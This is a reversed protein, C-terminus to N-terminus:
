PPIVTSITASFFYIADTLRIKEAIILDDYAVLRSFCKITKNLDTKKKLSANMKLMHLIPILNDNNNM